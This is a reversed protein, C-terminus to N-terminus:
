AAIADLDAILDLGPATGGPRVGEAAEGRDEALLAEGHDEYQQEAHRRKREWCASGRV